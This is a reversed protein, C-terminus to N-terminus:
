PGAGDAAPDKNTPRVGRALLYVEASSERSAAPKRTSVSRFARKLHEVYQSYGSGQFVKVLLAGDPKLHKVSFDAALEALHLSRAADAAAVGSLNPAMDSLVVDVAAGGLLGGLQAEVEEERFDGQIFDVDPVPDMPLVDLAVIRGRLKGDSGALRKRVVQTWSGPAAGLEVVVMGPKLLRDTDAIETLKYAARSRFGEQVSRKVFPDTVHRKIWEPNSRHKKKAQPM